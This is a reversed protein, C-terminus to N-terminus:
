FIAINKEHWITSLYEFTTEKQTWNESGPASNEWLRIVEQALIINYMFTFGLVIIFKPSPIMKM